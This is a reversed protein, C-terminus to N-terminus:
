SLDCLEYTYTQDKHIETAIIFSIKNDSKVNMKRTLLLDTLFHADFIHYYSIIFFVNRWLQGLSIIMM